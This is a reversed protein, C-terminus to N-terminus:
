DGTCVTSILMQKFISARTSDRREPPLCRLSADSLAAYILKVAMSDLVGAGMLNQLFAKATVADVEEGIANVTHMIM